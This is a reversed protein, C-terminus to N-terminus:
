LWDTQAPQVAPIAADTEIPEVARGQEAAERWDLLVAGWLDAIGFHPQARQMRVPPLVVRSRVGLLNGAWHSFSSTPTAILVSCCAMGFLDVVPHGEAEHGPLLPQYAFVRPLTVIDFEQRLQALTTRDGSYGLLFCLDPHRRRFAQMVHVYWWLAPAPHRSALADYDAEAISFDGRRIHVAVLPRGAYPALAERIAQAIRPHPRLSAATPLVYDRQLARPGYTARLNIVRHRAMAQLGALDFDRQKRSILREWPAIRGTYTGEIRLSDMEPWDLYIDHGHAARIMRALVLTELRNGLGSFHSIYIKKRLM